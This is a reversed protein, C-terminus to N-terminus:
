LKNKLEGIMKKGYEYDPNIEVAIQFYKLAQGKEGIKLSDFIKKIFSRADNYVIEKMTEDTEILAINDNYNKELFLHIQSLGDQITRDNESYFNANTFYYNILFSLLQMIVIISVGTLLIKSFISIKRIIRM